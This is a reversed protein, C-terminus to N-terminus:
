KTYYGKDRCIWKLDSGDISIIRIDGADSAVRDELTNNEDNRSNGYVRIIPPYGQWRDSPLLSSLEEITKVM